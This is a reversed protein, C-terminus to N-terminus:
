ITKFMKTISKLLCHPMNLARDGKIHLLIRIHYLYVLSFRDECMVHKQILFILDWCPDKFWARPVGTAWNPNRRNGLLFPTLSKVKLAKNKVWKEGTQPLNLIQALYNEPLHLNLKGVERCEGDVSHFFAMTIKENHSTFNELFERWGVRELIVM